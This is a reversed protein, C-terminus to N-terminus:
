PCTSRSSHKPSATGRYACSRTGPLHKILTGDGVKRRLYVRIIVLKHNGFLGPSGSLRRLRPRSPSSLPCFAQRRMVPGGAKPAETEEGAQHYEPGRGQESTSSGNGWSQAARRRRSSHPYAGPTQELFRSACDLDWLGWGQAQLQEEQLRRAPLGATAWLEKLPCTAQGPSRHWVHPYVSKAM